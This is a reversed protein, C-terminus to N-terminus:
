CKRIKKSHQDFRLYNHLKNNSYFKMECKRCKLTLQSSKTLETLKENLIEDFHTKSVDQDLESSQVNESEILTNLIEDYAKNEYYEDKEYYTSSNQENEIMWNEYYQSDYDDFHEKQSKNQYNIESKQFQKNQWLQQSKTQANESNSSSM